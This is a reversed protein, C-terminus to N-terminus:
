RILTITGNLDYLKGTSSKAKLVYFYVGEPCPSDKYTGNWWVGGPMQTKHLLEGWRSYVLLELFDFQSKTYVAEFVENLGNGQPTFVNPVFLFEEENVTLIQSTADVCGYADSAILKVLYRGANYYIYTPNKSTDMNTEGFDWMFQNANSSSKNEFNVTLPKFGVSPNAKFAATVKPYIAIYVSDQTQCINNQATL